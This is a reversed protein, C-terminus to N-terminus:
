YGYQATLKGRFRSGPSGSLLLYRRTDIAPYYLDADRSGPEPPVKEFRPLPDLLSDPGLLAYGGSCYRGYGTEALSSAVPTRGRFSIETPVRGALDDAQGARFSLAFASFGNDDLRGSVEESLSAPRTPISRAAIRYPASEYEGAAVLVRYTGASDLEFIQAGKMCGLPAATEGDPGRMDLYQDADIAVLGPEDARYTLLAYGADNLKGSGTSGPTLTGATSDGWALGSARRMGNPGIQGALLHVYEALTALPALRLGGDERRALVFFDEIGLLQGTRTQCHDSTEDFERQVRVCLGDLAVSAASYDYEDGISTDLAVHGLDLRVLGSGTEHEDIRSDVVHTELSGETRDALEQLAATYPRMAAAEGGSALDLIGNVDRGEVAGALSELLQGPQAPATGESSEGFYPPALGDRDVLYQLLTMTPSVYWRGNVEQTVVYWGEGNPGDAEAFDVHLPSAAGPILEAPAGGLSGQVTGASVPVKVIGPGLREEGLQLGSISVPTGDSDGGSATGSASLDLDDDATEYIESLASAEEPSVVGIAAALDQQQLSDALDRVAATPSPAGGNGGGLGNVLVVVVALLVVLGIGLPVVVRPPPLSRAPREQKAPPSSAGGPSSDVAAGCAPCFGDGQTIEGGCSHCFM